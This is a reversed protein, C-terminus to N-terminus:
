SLHSTLKSLSENILKSNHSKKLKKKIKFETYYLTKNIIEKKLDERIKLEMQSSLQKFGKEKRLLSNKIDEEIKKKIIKSEYLAEENLKKIKILTVEYKKSQENFIKEADEKLKKSEELQSKLEEIKNDLNTLVISKVPKFVLIVFIVFSVAVWLTANDLINLDLSM